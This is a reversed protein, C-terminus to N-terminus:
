PQVWGRLVEDRQREFLARTLLGRRWLDALEDLQDIPELGPPGGRGAADLAGWPPRSLLDVEDGRLKRVRRM